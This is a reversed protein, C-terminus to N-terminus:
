PVFKNELKLRKYKIYEKENMPKESAIIPKGNDDKEKLEEFTKSLLGEVTKFYQKM